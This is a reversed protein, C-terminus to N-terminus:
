IFQVGVDTISFSCQKTRNTRTSSSAVSFVQKGDRRADTKSFALRHTVIRRWPKCLYTRGFDTRASSSQKWSSLSPEDPGAGDPFSGRMVAQTSAFVVIRYDKLLKELLEVCRRLNSEQRAVSHGGGSKDPWYFASISDVVLLGLSPRSCFTDEAYRLTFLLQLSSACHVVYLRRLCSRVEEESGQPLRRELITVLRLMDFHYDTDVYM